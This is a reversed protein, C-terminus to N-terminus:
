GSPRGTIASGSMKRAAFSGVLMAGIRWNTCGLPGILQLILAVEVPGQDPPPDELRDVLQRAPRRSPSGSFGAVKIPM